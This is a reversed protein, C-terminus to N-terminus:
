EYLYKEFFQVMEDVSNLWDNGSLIHQDGEYAVMKVEGGLRRTREALAEAQVLPVIPDRKGHVILTPPMRLADEPFFSSLGASNVALAAIRPDRSAEVSAAFAGLSFAAVGIEGQSHSLQGAFSVADRVTQRWLNFTEADVKEPVVGEARDFYSPIVVVFGRAALKSAVEDLRSKYFARGARGPVLVITPAPTAQPLHIEVPISRGVSLLRGSSAAFQPLQACSALVSLVLPLLFIGLVATRM